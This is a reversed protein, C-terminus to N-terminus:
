VLLEPIIYGIVKIGFTQQIKRLDFDKTNRSLLFDASIDIADQLISKWGTGTFCNWKYVGWAESSISFDWKSSDRKM